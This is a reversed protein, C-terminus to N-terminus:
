SHNLVPFSFFVIRHRLPVPFPLALLEQHGSLLLYILKSVSVMKKKLSNLKALRAEKASTSTSSSAQMNEEVQAEMEEDQHDSENGLVQEDQM